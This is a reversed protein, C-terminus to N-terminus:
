LRGRKALQAVQAITRRESDAIAARIRAESAPDAGRADINNVVSVAPGAGGSGPQSITVREGGNARFIPIVRDGSNPGPVVFSGGTAFNKAASASGTKGGAFTGLLSAFVGGFGGGPGAQGAGGLADTFVRQLEEQLVSNALDLIMRQLARNFVDVMGDVGDEFLAFVGAELTDAIGQAAAGTIDQLEQLSREAIENNAEWLSAVSDAAEDALGPLAGEIDGLVNRLREAEQAETAIEDRIRQAGPFDSPDTDLAASPARLITAPSETPDEPTAPPTRATRGGGAPRILAEYEARLKVLREMQLLEIGLQRNREAFDGEAGATAAAARADRIRDEVAGLKGLINDATGDQLRDFVKAAEVALDAFKQSATTLLPTLSSLASAMQVKMVDSLAQLKDGAEEAARATKESLVAGADRARQQLDRLGSSGEGLLVAMKPGAARGFAEAAARARQAPNDISELADAFDGLVAESSRVNGSADRIAVGMRAFLEVQAKSGNAAAGITTNFRLMASTFEEASVGAQGAAFRLAQFAEVGLGTQDAADVIASAYDIAGKTAAALATVGAASFGAFASVANKAVAPLRSVGQEVKGVSRALNDVSSQGTTEAAITFKSKIDM